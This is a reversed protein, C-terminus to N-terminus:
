EGERHAEGAKLAGVNDDADAFAIPPLDSADPVEPAPGVEPPIWASPAPMAAITAAIAEAEARSQVGRVIVEYRTTEHISTFRTM